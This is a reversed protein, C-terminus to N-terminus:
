FLIIETCTNCRFINQSQFRGNPSYDQDLLESDSLSDSESMEFKPIDYM